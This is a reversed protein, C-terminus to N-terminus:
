RTCASDLYGDSVQFLSFLMVHPQVKIVGFFLYAGVELAIM